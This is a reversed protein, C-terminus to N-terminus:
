GFTVIIVYGTFRTTYSLVLAGQIKIILNLAM